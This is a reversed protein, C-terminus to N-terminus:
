TTTTSTTTPSCFGETLSFSQTTITIGYPGTGGYDTWGTSLLVNQTTSPSYSYYFVGLDDNDQYFYWGDGNPRVYGRVDSTLYSIQYSNDEPAPYQNYSYYGNPQTGEYLFSQIISSSTDEGGISVTFDVELCLETPLQTTTTTTTLSNLVEWIDCIQENM